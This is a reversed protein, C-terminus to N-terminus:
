LVTATTNELNIQARLDPRIIGIPQIIDSDGSTPEALTYAGAAGLYVLDGVTGAATVSNYVVANQYVGIRGGASTLDAGAIYYAKRGTSASTTGKTALIGTIALLQGQEVAVSVDLTRIMNETWPLEYNSSSM